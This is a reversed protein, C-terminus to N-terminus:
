WWTTPDFPNFRKKSRPKDQLERVAKALATSAAASKASLAKAAEQRTDQDLSELREALDEVLRSCKDWADRDGRIRPSLRHWANGGSGVALLPYLAGVAGAAIPWNHAIDSRAILYATAQVADDTSEATLSRWAAVDLHRPLASQDALRALGAIEANAHELRNRIYRKADDTLPLEFDTPQPDRDALTILHDLAEPYRQLFRGLAHPNNRLAAVPTVWNYDDRPSEGSPVDSDTELDAWAHWLTAENRNWVAALAERPSLRMAVVLTKATILSNAESVFAATLGEAATAPGTPTTAVASTPTSLAAATRSPDLQWCHRLWRDLSADTAYIENGLERHALADFLDLSDVQWVPADGRFALLRRKLRRLRRPESARYRRLLDSLHDPTSGGSTLVDYAEAFAVILGVATEGSGVFHIFERLPGAQELDSRILDDVASGAAAVSNPDRQSAFLLPQKNRAFRATDPATCFSLNFRATSWLQQWVAIAAREREIPETLHLRLGGRYYLGAEAAATSRLTLPAGALSQRPIPDLQSDELEEPTPRRLSELLREGNLAAPKAHPIVLTRTIVTNPREADLEIWTRALAYTSDPLPYGTLYSGDSTRTRPASDSNHGLVAAVEHTFRCSAALMQHGQRYGHVAQHILDDTRDSSM